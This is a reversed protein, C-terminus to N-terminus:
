CWVVHLKLSILFPILLPGFYPLQFQRFTLLRELVSLEDNILDAHGLVILVVIM